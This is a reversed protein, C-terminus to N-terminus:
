ASYSRLSFILHGRVQVSPWRPGFDRERKGPCDVCSFRPRSPFTFFVSNEKSGKLNHKTWDEIANEWRHRLNRHSDFVHDSLQHMRSASHHGGVRPTPFEQRGSGDEAPPHRRSFYLIRQLEDLVLVGLLEDVPDRVVSFDGDAVNWRPM